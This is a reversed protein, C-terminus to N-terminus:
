ADRSEVVAACILSWLGQERDTDDPRRGYASAFIEELEAADHEDDDAHDAIYQEVQTKAMIEEEHQSQLGDGSESAGGGHCPREAGGPEGLPPRPLGPRKPM